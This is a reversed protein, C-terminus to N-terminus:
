AVQGHVLWTMDKSQYQPMPLQSSRVGNCLFRAMVLELPALRSIGLKIWIVLYRLKELKILVGICFSNRIQKIMETELSEKQQHAIM